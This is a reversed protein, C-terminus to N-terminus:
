LFSNKKKKKDEIIGAKQLFRKYRKIVTVLPIGLTIGGIELADSVAGTLLKNDNDGSSLFSNRKSEEESLQKASYKVAKKIANFPMEAVQVIPAGVPSFVREGFAARIGMDAAGRIVPIGQTGFTLVEVGASKLTSKLKKKFEDDDGSFAALILGIVDGSGFARIIGSMVAPALAEAVIFKAYDSGSITGARTAQLTDWSRNQIASTASIFKVIYKLQPHLQAYIKDIGRASGQTGSILRDAESIAQKQSGHEAMSKSYQAMWVPAAVAFDAIRIGLFGFARAENYIKKSKGRLIKDARQRIDADPAAFRDRMFASLSVIFNISDKPSSWFNIEARLYNARGVETIGQTASAFQMGITNLNGYLAKVTVATNWFKEFKGSDLVSPNTVNTILANFANSGAGLVRKVEGRVEPNYIKNLKQNLSRFAINHVDESLASLFVNVDLKIPRGTHDAREKTSSSRPSHILGDTNPGRTEQIFEGYEGNIRNDYKVPYYGGKIIRKTKNGDEGVIDVEFTREPILELDTYTSEKYAAKKHPLIYRFSDWLGEIADWAENTNLATLIKDIAVSDLESGVIEGAQNKIAFGDQLKQYNDLTGTNLAVALIAQFNWERIGIDVLIKPVKPLDLSQIYKHTFISEMKNLYKMGAKATVTAQDLLDLEFNSMDSLPIFINNEFVGRTGKGLAYTNGDLSRCITLLNKATYNTDNWLASATDGIAKVDFSKTRVQTKRNKLKKFIGERVSKAEKQKQAEVLAVGETGVIKFFDLIDTVQSFQKSTLNKYSVRGLMAGPLQNQAYDSNFREFFSDMSQTDEATVIKNSLKYAYAIKKYFHLAEGFMRSKTNNPSNYAATKKISEVKKNIQEARKHKQRLLEIDHRVQQILDFSQIWKKEQILKLAKASNNEISDLPRKLDLIKSVPMNDIELNIESKLITLSQRYRKGGQKSDKAKTLLLTSMEDIRKLANTSDVVFSSQMFNDTFEKVMSNILQGKYVTPVPNSELDYLMERASKYGHEGAIISVAESELGEDEERNIENALNEYMQQEELLTKNFAKKQVTLKQDRLADTLELPSITRNLVSSVESSIRDSHAGKNSMYYGYESKPVGLSQDPRVGDPYAFKMELMAWAIDNNVFLWENFATAREKGKPLAFKKQRPPRTIANKKLLNEILSQQIGMSQVDLYKLRGNKKITKWVNYVSMSDMIKNAERGSETKVKPLEKALQNDISEFYENKQKQLNKIFTKKDSVRLGHLNHESLLQNLKTDTMLDISYKDSVLMRDFVERLNQNINIDAFYAKSGFFSYFALLYKKFAAFLGAIRKNAGVPVKGEKLYLEFAKAGIEIDGDEFEELAKIDALLQENTIVGDNRLRTMTDRFFHFTEHALTPLKSDEFLAIMEFNKESIIAGLKKTGDKIPISSMYKKQFDEFSINNIELNNIIDIPQIGAREAFVRAMSDVLATGYKAQQAKLGDEGAKLSATYSDLKNLYATESETLEKEINKDEVFKSEKQMKKIETETYGGIVDRSIDLVKEVVEKNKSDVLLKSADINISGNNEAQENLLDSEIDTLGLAEKVTVGPTDTENFMFQLDRANVIISMGGSINDVYQKSVVQSNGAFEENNELEESINRITAKKKLFKGIQITDYIRAPIHPAQMAATLVATVGVNRGTLLPNQVNISKLFDLGTMEGIKTQTYNSFQALYEESIEAPMSQIQAAGSARRGIRILKGLIGKSIAARSGIRGFLKGIGPIKTLLGGSLETAYETANLLYHKFVLETNSLETDALIINGNEDFTKYTKANQIDKVVLPTFFATGGITTGTAGVLFRVAKNMKAPNKFFGLLSRKGIAAAGGSLMMWVVFPLSKEGATQVDRMFTTGIESSIANRIFQSQADFTYPNVVNSPEDPFFKESAEFGPILNNMMNTISIEFDTVGYKQFADLPIDSMDIGTKKTFDDLSKEMMDKDDFYGRGGGESDAYSIFQFIKKADVMKQKLIEFRELEIPALPQLPKPKKNEKRYELFKNEADKGLYEQSEIYKEDTLATLSVDRASKARTWEDLLPKFVRRGHPDVYYNGYYKYGADILEKRKAPNEPQLEKGYIQLVEDTNLEKYFFSDKIRQETESPSYFMDAINNATTIQHPKDYGAASVFPSSSILDKVPKKWEISSPEKILAIDRNDMNWLTQVPINSKESLDIMSGGSDKSMSHGIQRMSNLKIENPNETITPLSDAM